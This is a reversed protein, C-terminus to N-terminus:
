VGPEGTGQIGKADLCERLRNRARFLLVGVHTATVDLIKCVEATDFEQVVSLIFAMRQKLPVGELCDEIHARVHADYVRLDAARPPRSWGGGPAFREQVVEDIDEDSRARGERRRLESIKNYLIGFLWTRVRSRGEFRPATEIFTAFTSQAADEAQEPGLGAGRAARLLQAFYAEAVSRLAEPSRSRVQQAFAPSNMDEAVDGMSLVM